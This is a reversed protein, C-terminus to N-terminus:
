KFYLNDHGMSTGMAHHILQQKLPLLRDIGQMALGRMFPVPGMHDAFALKFGDMALLMRQNHGKRQRQYARLVETRWWPRSKHIAQAIQQSLAWADLFGLNAGQGALPHITHAADGVLAVGPQVYDRAHRMTLPFQYRAGVLRTEGLKFGFAEGLHQNFDAEALTYLWEVHAPPASWVIACHQQDALPLFALPGQPTFRQWATYQHPQTTKIVGVLAHQQYSREACSFGFAQRVLSHGGDAGIILRATLQQQSLGARVGKADRGVWQLKQGTLLHIQPLSQIRQYLSNIIAQNEVIHGLNPANIEACDFTLEGHSRADWVHMRQYACLRQAVVGPWVGLQQLFQESARTLAVVRAEWATLPRYQGPHDDILAVRLDLQALACATAAGVMSGGVLIVDYDHSM